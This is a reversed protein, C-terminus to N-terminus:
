IWVEGFHRRGSTKEGLLIVMNTMENKENILIVVIVDILGDKEGHKGNEM